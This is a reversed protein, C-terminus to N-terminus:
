AQDKPWRSRRGVYRRRIGRVELTLDWVEHAKKFGASICNSLCNGIRCTAHHTTYKTKLRLLSLMDAFVNHDSHDKTRHNQNGKGIRLWLEGLAVM